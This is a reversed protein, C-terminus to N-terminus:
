KTKGVYAITYAETDFYKQAVERVQEKTVKRLKKLYEDEYDYGVGLYENVGMYYAQNNRALRATLKSGWLSNVARSLERESVYSDKMKSIEALIGEKAIIFNEWGTGMSVYFWGFDRDFNVTSGVSYALGQIERLELGLHSSLIANAVVLAIADDSEIGCTLNGLYIYVQEKEMEFQATKRVESKEPVSLQPYSEGSPKMDDFYKRVLELMKDPPYNTVVTLILNEPGYFYGHFDLLDQRTFNEVTENKGLIPRNYPHFSFLVSYFLKRCAKYTSEEEMAQLRKVEMKTKRIEGEPFSPNKIIDSFLQLGKETFEDITEFKLFTYAPTTYRDDYPIYPNDNTIINAGIADLDKSLEEASRTTTGKTLMRNVFDAIGTQESPELLVRSKGIINVGLVRSDPNSKIIVALGNKLTAKKYKTHSGGGFAFGFLLTGSLLAMLVVSITRKM